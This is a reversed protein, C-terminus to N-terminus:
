PEADPAYKIITTLRTDNGVDSQGAVIVNNHNDLTVQCAEDTWFAGETYVGKWLIHGAPDYKITVNDKRLTLQPITGPHPSM